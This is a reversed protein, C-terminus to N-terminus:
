VTGQQGTDAQGIPEQEYQCFYEEDATADRGTAGLTSSYLMLSDSNLQVDLPSATEWVKTNEEVQLARDTDDMDFNNTDYVCLIDTLVIIVFLLSFGTVLYVSLRHNGNRMKKMKRKIKGLPRHKTEVFQM